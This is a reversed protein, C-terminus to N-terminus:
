LAPLAKRPLQEPASPVCALAFVLAGLVGSFSSRETFLISGRRFSLFAMYQVIFCTAGCLAAASAMLKILEVAGLIPSLLQLLVAVAVVDVGLALYSSEVLSSTFLNWLWGKVTQGPVM